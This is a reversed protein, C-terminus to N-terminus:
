LNKTVIIITYTNTKKRSYHPSKCKDAHIDLRVHKHSQTHTSSNTHAEKKTYIYTCSNIHTNKIRKHTTM